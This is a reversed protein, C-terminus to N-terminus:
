HIHVQIHYQNVTLSPPVEHGTVSAPLSSSPKETTLQCYSTIANAHAWSSGLASTSTLTTVRSRRAVIIIPFPFLPEYFPSMQHWPASHPLSKHPAQFYQQQGISSYPRPKDMTSTHTPRLGSHSTKRPLTPPILATTIQEDYSLCHASSTALIKHLHQM